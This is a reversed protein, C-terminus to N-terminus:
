ESKYDSFHLYYWYTDGFLNKMRSPNEKGGNIYEYIYKQFSEQVNESIEIVDLSPLRESTL